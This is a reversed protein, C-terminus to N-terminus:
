ICSDNFLDNNLIKNFYSNLIEDNKLKDNQFLYLKLKEIDKKLNNM